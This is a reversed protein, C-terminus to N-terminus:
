IIYSILDDIQIDDFSTLLIWEFIHEGEHVDAIINEMFFFM